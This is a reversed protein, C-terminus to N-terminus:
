DALRLTVARVSVGGRCLMRAALDIQLRTDSPCTVAPLSYSAQMAVAQSDTLRETM